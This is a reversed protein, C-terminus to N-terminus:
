YRRENIRKTYVRKIKRAQVPSGERYIMKGEIKIKTIVVKNRGLELLDGIAFEEEPAAEIKDSKTNPGEVISVKIDVRDFNKMWITDVDAAEAKDVRKDGSEMSTILLNHDEWVIQDGSKLVEKPFFEISTRTSSPGDSIIAKIKRPKEMEISAHHVSRCNNCKVTGDFGTEDSSGLKGRLIHHPTEEGCTDCFLYIITSETMGGATFPEM